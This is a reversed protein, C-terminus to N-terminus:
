QPPSQNGPPPPPAMGGPTPPADHGHDMEGADPHPNGRHCTICSVVRITDPRSSGMFNFYTKNIDQAMTIMHRAIEKEPKDDSAFDPWGGPNDKNPAHCFNCRVGLAHSYQHMLDKLSDESINKPLVKLNKFGDDPKNEPQHAAVSILIGVSLALIITSKKKHFM